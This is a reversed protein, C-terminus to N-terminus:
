RVWSCQMNFDTRNTAKELLNEASLGIEWLKEEIFDSIFINDNRNRLIPLTFESSKRLTQKFIPRLTEPVRCVACVCVSVSRTTCTTRRVTEIFSWTM